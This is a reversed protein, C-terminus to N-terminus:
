VTSLLTVSLNFHSNSAAGSLQWFQLGILDGAALKAITGVQLNTNGSPMSNDIIAGGFGAGNKSLVISRAGQNSPFNYVSGLLLYVASIPVKIRGATTALDGDWNLSSTNPTFGNPATANLPVPNYAAGSAFSSNIASGSAIFPYTLYQKVLSGTSFDAMWMIGTTAEAVVSGDFLTAPDPTVGNAVLLAGAYSDLIPWNAAFPDIYEDDSEVTLKMRPSKTVTM